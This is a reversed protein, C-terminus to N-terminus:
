HVLGTRKSFQLVQRSSCAERTANTEVIYLMCFWVFLFVYLFKFINMKVTVKFEPVEGVRNRRKKKQEAWDNM